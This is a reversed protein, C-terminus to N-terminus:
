DVSFEINEAQVVENTLSDYVFVVAGLNHFDWDPNISLNSYSKEITNNQIFDDTSVREGWTGSFSTRLVHNFEYDLVEGTAETEDKQAGIIKSETVYACVKLVKDATYIDQLAKISVQLGLKKNVTDISPTLDLGISPTKDLIISVASPWDGDGVLINGNYVTRSIMGNPLGAASCGFENDLDTGEPSRLDLNYPPNNAPQALFGVHIALPIIKNGYVAELDEIQIAARPCNVCFHATYDEILVKQVHTSSDNGGGGNSEIYPADVKDCSTTILTSVILLYFLRKMIIFKSHVLYQFVLVM